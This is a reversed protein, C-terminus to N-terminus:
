FQLLALFDVKQIDLLTYQKCCAQCQTELYKYLKVWFDQAELIGLAVMPPPLRLLTKYANDFLGLKFLQTM